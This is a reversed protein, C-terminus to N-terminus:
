NRNSTQSVSVWTLTFTNRMPIESGTPPSEHRRLNGELTRSNSDPAETQESANSDALEKKVQCRTGGLGEPARHRDDAALYGRPIELDEPMWVRFGWAKLVALGREFDEPPCPSSPAAIGILDGPALRSPFRPKANM